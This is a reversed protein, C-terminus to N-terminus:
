ENNKSEIIINMYKVMVHILASINPGISEVPVDWLEAIDIMVEKEAIKRM